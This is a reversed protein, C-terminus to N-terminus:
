RLEIESFGGVPQLKGADWALVRLRLSRVVAPRPLVLEHKMLTDSSLDFEIGASEKNLHLAVRRIRAFEGSAARNADYQSLLVLKARQPRELELTISPDTDTPAFAWGTGQYGDCAAGAHTFSALQSSCRAQVETLELKNSAAARAYELMWPQFVDRAVVHMPASELVEITHGETFLETPLVVHVRAQMTHAGDTAFLHQISFREGKWPVLQDVDRTQVVEGDVLFEVKDIHLAANSGQGHGYAEVTGPSFGSIWCSIRARGAARLWVPQTAPECAWTDQVSGDNGSSPATAKTLFLLAFCTNSLPLPEAPWDVPGGTRWEGTDRQERVLRAAGLRYWDHEGIRDVKMLAGVRELGYLWYYHWAYAGHPNGEVSFEREIWALGMRQARELSRGLPPPLDRGAGEKAIGLISIGAATMSATPNEREGHMYGFGAVQRKGTSSVGADAAVAVEFPTQQYKLTGEILELWVDKPIKVGSHVAARLGLAAYQTNSLDIYVGPHDPYGWTGEGRIRTSLLADVLARMREKWREPPGLADLALLQTSVSYNHTPFGGELFAAARLLSPHEASVRCKRLTYVALGTEGNRRDFHGVPERMDSGWSGDRNQLALLREVGRDIAANVGQQLEGLHAPTREQAPLPCALALIGLARLLM